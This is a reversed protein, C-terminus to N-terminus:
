GSCAGGGACEWKWEGGGTKTGGGRGQPREGPVLISVQGRGPSGLGYTGSCSWISDCQGMLDESIQCGGELGACKSAAWVEREELDSQEGRWLAGELGRELVARRVQGGTGDAACRIWSSM